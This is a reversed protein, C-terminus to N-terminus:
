SYIGRVNKDSLSTNQLYFIIDLTLSLLLEEYISRLFAARFINLFKGPFIGQYLRIDRSGHMIEQYIEM